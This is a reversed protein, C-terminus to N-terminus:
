KHLFLDLYTDLLGIILSVSIWRKLIVEKKQDIFYLRTNRPIHKRNM